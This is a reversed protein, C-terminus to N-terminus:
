VTYLTTTFNTALEVLRPHYHILRTTRLTILSRLTYCANSHPNDYILAITIALTSIYTFINCPCRSIQSTITCLQDPALNNHKICTSYLLRPYFAYNTPLIHRTCTPHQRTDWSELSPGHLTYDAGRVNNHQSLHTSTCHSHGVPPNIDTSFLLTFTQVSIPYGLYLIYNDSQFVLSVTCAALSPPRVLLPPLFTSHSTPSSNHPVLSPSKVAVIGLPIRCRCIQLLQPKAM